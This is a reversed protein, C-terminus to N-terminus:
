QILRSMRVKLIFRFVPKQDPLFAYSSVALFPASMSSAAKVSLMGAHESASILQFSSCRLPTFNSEEDIVITLQHGNLDISLFETDANPLDAANVSVDSLLTLRIDKEQILCERFGLADEVECVTQMPCHHNQM